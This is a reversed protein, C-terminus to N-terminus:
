LISCCKSASLNRSPYIHMYSIQQSLLDNKDKLVFYNCNSIQAMDTKKFFFFPVFFNPYNLGLCVGNREFYAPIPRGVLACYAVLLTQKEENFNARPIVCHLNM